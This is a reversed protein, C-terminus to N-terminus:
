ACPASAVRSIPGIVILDAERGTALDHLAFAPSSVPLSLLEARGALAPPLGDRLGELLKMGAGHLADDLEEAKGRRGFRAANPVYAHVLALQTDDRLEALETALRLADLTGPGDDCGVLIQQFL